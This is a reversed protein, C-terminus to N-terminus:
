VPHWPPARPDSFVTKKLKEFISINQAAHELVSENGERWSAAQGSLAKVPDAPLKVSFAEIRSHHAFPAEAIDDPSFCDM